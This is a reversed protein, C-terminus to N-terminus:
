SDRHVKSLLVRLEHQDADLEAPSRQATVGLLARISWLADVVDVGQVNDLFSRRMFSFSAGLRVLNSVFLRDPIPRGTGPVTLGGFGFPLDGLREAILDLTGDVLPAFISTTRRELALDMLGVFAFSVELERLVECNRVGEMTEVMVGVRLGRSHALVHEVEHPQRWMPILVDTGGQLRVAALQEVTQSGVADIRCVVRDFGLARVRGVAEDGDPIITTDIGILRLAGTQREVKGSREWDVVVADPRLAPPADSFRRLIVDDTSM